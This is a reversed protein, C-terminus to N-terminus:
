AAPAFYSLVSNAPVVPTGVYQPNLVMFQAVDSHVQAALQAMTSDKATRFTRLTQGAPAAVAPQQKLIWASSKQRECSQFIPWYLPSANAALDLATEVENCQFIINDVRGQAQKELVTFVDIASVVGAALESFSLQLLPLPNAQLALAASLTQINADLDDANAVLAAIPSQASLDVALQDAQTDDSEVWTAHVVVGGRKSGAWRTRAVDLKCNLNGLEPHQLTGSTPDLCAKLFLRWQYPYLAGQPWSENKSSFIFNEFPIVASVSVPHRGTGEVYAGNRDAYRHIVLDHRVELETEIVPFSVGKWLFEKLQAFLDNVSGTPAAGAPSGAGGVAGSPPAQTVSLSSITPAM